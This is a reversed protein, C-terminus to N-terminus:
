VPNQAQPTPLTLGRVHAHVSFVSCLLPAPMGEASAVTSHAKKTERRNMRSDMRTERARWGLDLSDDILAVQGAPKGPAPWSDALEHAVPEM